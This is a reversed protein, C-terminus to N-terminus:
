MILKKLSKKMHIMLDTLKLIRHRMRKHQGLGKESSKTYSCQDCQFCSFSESDPDGEKSPVHATTVVAETSSEGTASDSVTFAPASSVPARAAQHRIRERESPGRHRPRHPPPPFFPTPANPEGFTCNFESTSLNLTTEAGLSWFQMFENVTAGVFQCAEDQLLSSESCLIM